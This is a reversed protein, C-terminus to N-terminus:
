RGRGSIFSSPLRELFRRRGLVLLGLAVLTVPVLGAYEADLFLCISVFVMFVSGTQLPRTWRMFADYADMFAYIAHVCDTARGPYTTKLNRDFVARATPTEGCFHAHAGVM